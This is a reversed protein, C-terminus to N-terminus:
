GGNITKNGRIESIVEDTNVDVALVKSGAYNKVVVNGGDKDGNDLIWLLGKRDLYIDIVNYMWKYATSGNVNQHVNYNPYPRIVPEENVLNINIM